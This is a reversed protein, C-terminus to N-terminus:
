ENNIINEREDDNVEIDIEMADNEESSLDGSQNGSTEIIQTVNLENTNIVGPTNGLERGFEDQFM